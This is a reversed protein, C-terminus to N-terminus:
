SLSFHSLSPLPLSRELGSLETHLCAYYCAASLASPLSVAVEWLGTPPLQV